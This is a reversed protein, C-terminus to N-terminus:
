PRLQQYQDLDPNYAYRVQQKPSVVLLLDTWGHSKSPLPKLNQGQAYFVEKGDVVISIQQPGKKGLEPNVPTQLITEGLGDHNVDFSGENFEPDPIAMAALAPSEPIPSRQLASSKVPQAVAIAVPQTTTARHPRLPIVDSAKAVQSPSTPDTTTSTSALAASSPETVAPPRAGKTVPVGATGLLRDLWHVPRNPDVYAITGTLNDRELMRHSQPDVWHEYRFMVQYGLFLALIALVWGM